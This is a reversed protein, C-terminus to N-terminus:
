ASATFTDISFVTAAATAGSLVAILLANIILNGFQVSGLSGLAAASTSPGPAISSTGAASSAAETFASASPIVMSAIVTVIVVFALAGSFTGAGAALQKTRASSQMRFGVLAGFIPAMIFAVFPAVEATLYGLLLKHSSGFISGVGAMGSVMGAAEPLVPFGGLAGLLFILVGLLVSAAVMTGVIGKIFRMPEPRQLDDLASSGGGYQQQGGYQSGQQYNGQSQSGQNAQQYNGQGPAGQNQTGQQYNEQNQGGQQRGEQTSQGNPDNSGSM